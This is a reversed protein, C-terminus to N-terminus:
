PSTAPCAVGNPLVVEPGTGNVVAGGRVPWVFKATLPYAGTGGIKTLTAFAKGMLPKYDMDVEAVILRQGNRNYSVPIDLDAPAVGVSRATANSAIASCVRVTRATGKMYIGIATIRIKATSSDFPTLVLRSAAFIDDIATTDMPSKVNGTSTYQGLATLDAVTRALRTLAQSNMMARCYEATGVYLAFLFPVILAFEVVVVGQAGARLRRVQRRGSRALGGLSRGLRRALRPGIPAARSTPNCARTM